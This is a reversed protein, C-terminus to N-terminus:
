RVTAIAAAATTNGIGMEGLPLIDLGRDLEAEVVDVGIKMAALAQDRTMAPRAMFWIKLAVAFTKLSCIRRLIPLETSVGAWRCRHAGGAQRALVNVAAGGHLFNSVMQATVAQPYASVGEAVVGHDGAMIIIVKNTLQPLPYAPSGRWKFRYCRWGGSVAPRKQLRIKGAARPKFRENISRVLALFSNM